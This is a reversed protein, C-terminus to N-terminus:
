RDSKRLKLPNFGAKFHVKSLSERLSLRSNFKLFENLATEVAKHGTLEGTASKLKTLLSSDIKINAKSM